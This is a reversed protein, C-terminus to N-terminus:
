VACRLATCASFNLLREMGSIVLLEAVTKLLELIVARRQSTLFFYKKPSRFYVFDILTRMCIFQLFLFLRCTAQDYFHVVKIGTGHTLLNLRCIMDKKRLLKSKCLPSQASWIGERCEIIKDGVLTYGVNCSFNLTKGHDFSNGKREGHKPIGPDKCNASFLVFCNM